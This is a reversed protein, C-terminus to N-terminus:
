FNFTQRCHRDLFVWPLQRGARYRLLHGEAFPGFITLNYETGGSTAMFSIVDGTDLQGSSDIVQWEGDLFRFLGDNGLPPDVAPDRGPLLFLVELALDVGQLVLEWVMEHETIDTASELVLARPERPKQFLDLSSQDVFNHNGVFVSEGSEAGLENFPNELSGTCPEDNEIL